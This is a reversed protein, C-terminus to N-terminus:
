ASDRFVADWDVSDISAELESQDRLRHITRVADALSMFFGFGYRVFIDHERVATAENLTRESEIFDHYPKSFNYYGTEGLRKVSEKARDKSAKGQVQNADGNYVVAIGHEAIEQVTEGDLMLAGAINALLYGHKFANHSPAVFGKDTVVRMDTHMMLAGSEVLAAAPTQKPIYDHYTLALRGVGGRKIVELELQEAGAPSMLADLQQVVQFSDLPVHESM